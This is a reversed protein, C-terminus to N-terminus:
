RLGGCSALVPLVHEGLPVGKRAAAGCDLRKSVSFCLLREARTLLHAGQEM